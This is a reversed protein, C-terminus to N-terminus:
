YLLSIRMIHYKEITIINNICNIDRITGSTQELPMAHVNAYKVYLRICDRSYIWLSLCM